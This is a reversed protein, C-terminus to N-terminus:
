RAVSVPTPPAVARKRYALKRLLWEAPGRKGASELWGALAVTLLWVGVAVLTGQWETLYGGLGLGWASLLPALIVSQALYCTLSRKGVAVLARVPASDARSRLRVALLGFAAAYGLGCALGTATQFFTLSWYRVPVLEFWSLAVMAGGAWGIAIGAVAVRKLLTLHREPDDLLRHRAALIGALVATPLSLLFIGQGLTLFVWTSVRWLMSTLYSTEAAPSPFSQQGAFPDFDAPAFMGSVLQLLGLLALLSGLVILWVKLTRDRRDLFLWTAILGILGYAGLVDGMFLLAAHLLGFLLMWRHRRQLLKRAERPDVGAAQQRSYLQWIGYGFLFAFLPYSRFDVAVIAIAQWVADLGTGNYGHASIMGVERNFLHYPTNAVVILLLMLGRALDPALSRSLPRTSPETTTM